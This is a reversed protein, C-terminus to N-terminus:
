SNRGPNQATGEFFIDLFAITTGVRNSVKFGPKAPRIGETTSASCVVVDQNSDRQEVFATCADWM